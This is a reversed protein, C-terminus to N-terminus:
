HDILRRDADDGLLAHSFKALVQDLEAHQEASWGGLQKEMWQRQADCLRDATLRGADSLYFRTPTAAPLPYESAHFWRPSGIAQFTFPSGSMAAAADDNLWYDFWRLQLAHLHLGGYDSVHYWPGMMLRLQESVPQGPQMPQEDPRGPRLGGRLVEGPGLQDRHGVELRRLPGDVLDKLLALARAPVPLVSLKRMGIM